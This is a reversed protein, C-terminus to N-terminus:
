VNEKGGKQSSGPRVGLIHLSFWLMGGCILAGALNGDANDSAQFNPEASFAWYASSLILILFMFRLFGREIRKRLNAM